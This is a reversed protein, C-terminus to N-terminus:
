PLAYAQPRRDQLAPLRKRAAAVEALDLDVTLLAPATGGELLSEGWPTLVVSHGGFTEGKSKGVRNVAAVFCQNEIARARLLTRWHELRQIPWEAALLVLPVDALAYTRFLEPFRLDYCIALGAKGWPTQAIVPTSGAQLYRDEEMLGFRHIKRYATLLKGDADYLAFTNYVGASTHELLSGGIALHHQRALASMEAFLGADLPAALASARELAYGSGWLEPLLLLHSGRRSAEAAQRAAQRLNEDPAGLHVDMQALSIKLIQVSM